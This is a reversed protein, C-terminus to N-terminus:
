RNAFFDRGGPQPLAGAVGGVKPWTRRTTRWTPASSPPRAPSAAFVRNRAALLEEHSPWPRGTPDLGHFSWDPHRSCNRGASTADRRDARLVRGPRGHPHHGASRAPRVRGLDPGLAPRRDRHALRGPQPLRPRAAQLGEPRGRRSAEGRGTPPSHPPRLRPPSLGLDGPRRPEGDGMGTSTPSSSSGIRTRRRPVGPARRTADGLGGDLSVCLAVRHEDMIRVFEDLRAPDHRLRIWPHTHVDVVPFRARPSRRARRSRAAGEPASVKSRSRGATAGTSRARDTRGRWM